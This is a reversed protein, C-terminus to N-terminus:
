GRWWSGVWAVSGGNPGPEPYGSGWASRWSAWRREFGLTPKKLSRGIRENPPEDGLGRYDGCGIDVVSSAAHLPDLRRGLAPAQVRDATGPISRPRAGLRARESRQGRRTSGPSPRPDLSILRSGRRRFGSGFRDLIISSVRRGWAMSPLDVVQTQFRDVLGSEGPPSPGAISRDRDM